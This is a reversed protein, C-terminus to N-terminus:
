PIHTLTRGSKKISVNKKHPYAPIGMTNDTNHTKTYSLVHNSVYLSLHIYIYEMVQKYCTITISAGQVADLLVLELNISYLYKYQTDRIVHKNIRLNSFFVSVYVYTVCCRETNM